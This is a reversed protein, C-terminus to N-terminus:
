FAMDLEIMIREQPRSHDDGTLAKRVMRRGSGKAVRLKGEKTKKAAMELAQKRQKREEEPTKSITLAQPNEKKYFLANKLKQRIVQKINALFEQTGLPSFRDGSSIWLPGRVQGGKSQLCDDLVPTDELDTVENGEWDYAKKAFNRLELRGTCAQLFEDFKHPDTVVEQPEASKGNKYIIIRMTSVQSLNKLRKSMRHKSRKKRDEPLIIGQLSWKAGQRIIMNQKMSGFPDKYNEGMSVYVDAHPPIDGGDSVEVGDELFLRRAAFALGLKETVFELFIKLNPASAHIFIDRTGNKYACATIIRPQRKYISKASGPRSRRSRISGVSMGSVPRTRRTPASAPRGKCHRPAERPTAPDWMTEDAIFKADIKPKHGKPGTPLTSASVPRRPAPPRGGARQQRGYVLNAHPLRQLYPSPPLEKEMRIESKQRRLDDLYQAVLLDEYSVMGSKARNFLNAGKQATQQRDSPRGSAPRGSAPRQGRRGPGSDGGMQISFTSTGGKVGEAAM